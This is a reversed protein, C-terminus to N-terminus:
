IYKSLFGENEQFNKNNNRININENNNNILNKDLINNNNSNNMNPENKMINNFNNNVKIKSFFNNVATTEDWNAAQLYKTAVEPDGTETMAMFNLVKDIYEISNIEKM